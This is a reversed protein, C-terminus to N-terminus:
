FCPLLRKRVSRARYRRHSAAKLYHLSEKLYHLSEKLYHLSEKLYHSPDEVDDGFYKRHHPSEERDERLEGRLPCSRALRDRFGALAPSLLDLDDARAPRVDLLLLLSGLSSGV